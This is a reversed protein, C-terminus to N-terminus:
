LGAVSRITMIKYLDQQLTKIEAKAKATDANFALNANLQKAM